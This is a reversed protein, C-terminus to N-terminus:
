RVRKGTFTIEATGVATREITITMPKSPVNTFPFKPIDPILTGAPGHWVGSCKGFDTSICDAQTQCNLYDDGNCVADTSVCCFPEVSSYRRPLPHGNSTGIWTDVNESTYSDWRIMRDDFSLSRTDLNAPFTYTAYETDCGEIPINDNGCECDILGYRETNVYYNHKLESGDLPKNYFRMQSVGGMYTGAFNKEILMNEDAPDRKLARKSFVLNEIVIEGGTNPSIGM